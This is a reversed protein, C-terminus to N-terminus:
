KSRFFEVISPIKSEFNDFSHCGGKIVEVKCKAYFNLSKKYDLVEDGDQLLVYLNSNKVKCMADLKLLYDLMHKELKFKRNTCPNVHEGCLNVFYDQPHVCPNLLAAKFDYKYSLITSFFGGMSSGVLCIDDHKQRLSQFYDILYTYAEQPEDPFDPACFEIDKYHTNIYNKLITSKIANPGSLFGHIYAILM